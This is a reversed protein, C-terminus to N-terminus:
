LAILSCPEWHETTRKFISTLGRERAKPQGPFLSGPIPGRVNQGGGPGGYCYTQKNSRHWAIEPYKNAIWAGSNDQAGNEFVILKRCLADMQEKSRTKDLDVLAQALSNTGANAM